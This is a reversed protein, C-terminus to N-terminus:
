QAALQSTNATARPITGRKLGDPAPQAAHWESGTVRALLPAVIEAIAQYGAPTPHSDRTFYLRSAAAAVRARMPETLDVFPIHLKVCVAACSRAIAESKWRADPDVIGDAYFVERVPISLVILRGGQEAVLASLREIEAAQLPLGDREFATRDTREPGAVTAQTAAVRMLAFLHSHGVLARYPLSARVATRFITWRSENAPREVLQGRADRFVLRRGRDDDVDNFFVNLVVLQPHFRSVWREYWLLQEGTGTGIVGANIVEVPRTPTLTKLATETLYPYTEDDNAGVGFTVSDGLMAIRVGATAADRTATLSRFHERNVTAVTDYQDTLAIRSRVGASPAAVGAIQQNVPVILPQPLFVRLLAELVVIVMLVSLSIAIAKKM